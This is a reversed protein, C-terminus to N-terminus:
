PPASLIPPFHPSFLSEERRRECGRRRESPLQSCMPLVSRSGVVCLCRRRASLCNIRFTTTKARRPAVLGLANCCVFCRRPFVFALMVWRIGQHCGRAQGDQSAFRARHESPAVCRLCGGCRATRSGKANEPFRERKTLLGAETLITPTTLISAAVTGAAALPSSTAPTTPNKPHNSPTPPTLNQNTTRGFSSAMPGDTTWTRTCCSLKRNVPIKVVTHLWTIKLWPPASCLV